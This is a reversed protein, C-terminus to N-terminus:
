SAAALISALAEPVDAFIPMLVEAGSQRHVERVADSAGALAVSGGRHAAQQAAWVLTGLGKSDIFDLATVDIVIHASGHAFHERVLQLFAEFMAEGHFDRLDIGLIGHEPDLPRVDFPTASPTM